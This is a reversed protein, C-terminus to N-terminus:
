AKALPVPELFDGLTDMTAGLIQTPEPKLQTLFGLYGGGQANSDDENDSASSENLFEIYSKTASLNVSKNMSDLYGQSGTNKNGPNLNSL